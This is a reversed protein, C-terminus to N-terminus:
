IDPTDVWVATYESLIEKRRADADPNYSCWWKGWKNIYECDTPEITYGDEELQKFEAAANGMGEMYDTVIGDKDRIILNKGTGM